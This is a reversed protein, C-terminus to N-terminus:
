KRSYNNGLFHEITSRLGVEISTQPIFDLKIRALSSDASLCQEDPIDDSLVVSLKKQSIKEIIKIINMIKYQKGSSINFITFGKQPKKVAQIIGHVADEVFLVDRIQNGNNYVTTTINDNISQILNTLYGTKKFPGYLTSLRLIVTDINHSISYNQYIKETILKVLGYTTQPNPEDSEKSPHKLNEGYVSISSILVIRINKKKIVSNLINLTGIINNNIFKSLNNEYQGILNIIIDNDELQSDLLGPICIDGSFTNVDLKLHNKHILTMIDFNEKQLIPLITKGIFGSGGLLIIKSM